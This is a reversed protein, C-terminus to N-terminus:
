KLRHRKLDEKFLNNYYSDKTLFFYNEPNLHLINELDTIEIEGLYMQFNVKLLYDLKKSKNAIESIQSFRVPDPFQRTEKLNLLLKAGKCVYQSEAVSIGIFVSKSKNSTARSATIYHLIIDGPFVEGMMNYYRTGAPAYLGTEGSLKKVWPREGSVEIWIRM